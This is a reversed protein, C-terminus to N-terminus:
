WLLPLNGHQDLLPKLDGTYGCLYFLGEGYAGNALKQYSEIEFGGTPLGVTPPGSPAAIRSPSLTVTYDPLCPM